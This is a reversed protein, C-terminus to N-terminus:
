PIDVGAAAVWIQYWDDRDLTLEQSMLASIIREIKGSGLLIQFKAPHRLLWAFAIQEVSCNRTAAIKALVKFVPEDPKFLKGGALPSWIQPRIKNKYLYDINGNIFHQHEMVSAEIQNTQLPFDLYAQLLEFQAPLFNSVGFNLVKGASALSSFALAVEEPNMLWDPRHILLLDLHETALNTLSREVAAIIHKSDTDYIHTQRPFKDSPLKIGCKSTLFIKDRIGPQLKLAQGFLQECGYDGYIDAHDFHTINLDILQHIFDLLQKDSYGWSNLRWCGQIFTNNHNTM